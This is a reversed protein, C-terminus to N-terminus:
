PLMYYRGSANWLTYGDAGGSRLGDLQLNLYRVYEPREYQLEAGILFAQVYPRVLARDDVLAHLRRTGLDYIVNGRDLYSFQPMFPLVFHSPYFMPCIADVYVSLRVVDQGLYSMNSWANFGFVDISIPLEIASRAASLFGELAQVRDAGDVEYRSIANDANGDSPFRIYDFQIEDVGLGAVEQAIDINYAWVETSYPDVWHEVQVSRREGTDEDVYTRFVGFPRNRVRDWMALRNDDLAYLRRDKFVVLRAIVYTGQAHAERVLDPLDVIPTVAGIARPLELSSDYTVRGEDDKVDVVIATYGRTRILELYSGIREPAANGSSVYIGTHGTARERREAKATSLPQRAASDSSTATNPLHSDRALSPSALSDGTTLDVVRPRQSAEAIKAYSRDGDISPGLRTTVGTEVNLSVFGAGFGARVVVSGDDTFWLDRVEEFFGAGFYLDRAERDDTLESWSGGADRSRYIGDYSTGILWHDSDQPDVALATIYSSPNTADSLDIENWSFTGDDSAFLRSGVAALVLSRGPGFWTTAATVSLPEGARNLPLSRVPLGRPTEWTVGGDTSRDIRIEHSADASQLSRFLVHSRRDVPGGDAAHLPVVGILSVAVITFVTRHVTPWVNPACGVSCVISQDM